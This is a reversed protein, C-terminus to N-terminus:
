YSSCELVFFGKNCILFDGKPPDNKSIKKTFISLAIWFIVFFLIHLYELSKRENSLKLSIPIYVLLFLFFLCLIAYKKRKNKLFFLAFIPRLLFVNLRIFSLLVLEM